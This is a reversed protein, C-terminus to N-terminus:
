EHLSQGHLRSIWKLWGPFAPTLPSAPSMCERLKNYHERLNNIKLMIRIIRCTKTAALYYHGSRALYFHGTEKANCPLVWDDTEVM